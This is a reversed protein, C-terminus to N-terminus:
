EVANEIRQASVTSLINAQNPHKEILKLVIATSTKYHVTLSPLCIWLGSCFALASYDIEEHEVIKSLVRPFFELM